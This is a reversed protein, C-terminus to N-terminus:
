VGGGEVEGEARRSRRGVEVRRRSRYIQGQEVEVGVVVEGRCNHISRTGEVIAEVRVMTVIVEVEGGVVV